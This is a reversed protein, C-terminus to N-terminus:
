AHNLLSQSPQKCVGVWRRTPREGPALLGGGMGREPDDVMLGSSNQHLSCGGSSSHRGHNDFSSSSRHVPHAQHSGSLWGPWWSKSRRVISEADGADAAAVTAAAAATASSDGLPDKDPVTHLQMTPSTHHSILTDNFHSQQTFPTDTYEKSSSYHGSSTLAQSSHQQQQLQMSSWGANSLKGAAPNSCRVSPLPLHSDQCPCIPL